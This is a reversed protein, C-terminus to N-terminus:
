NYGYPHYDAPPEHAHPPLQPLPRQRPPEGHTRPNPHHPPPPPPADTHLSHHYLAENYEARADEHRGEKSAQWSKMMSVHFNYKHGAETAKHGEENALRNAEYLDDQAKEHVEPLTERITRSNVIKQAAAATKLHADSAEQHATELEAMANAATSHARIHDDHLSRQALHVMTSSEAAKSQPPSDTEVSSMSSSGPTSPIVASAVLGVAALLVASFQFRM